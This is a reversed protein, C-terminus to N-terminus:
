LYWGGIAGFKNMLHAKSYVAIGFPLGLILTYVFLFIGARTIAIKVDMLRYKIIAYTIVFPYIAILFNSYPYVNINFVPLFDGHPGLWAIISAVIFYKTQNRILGKANSFSIILQLFTYMLLVWYFLLYFALYLPSKRLTWNHSYYQNFTYSLGGIFTYPYFFNLFIFLGALVYACFLLIKQYPKNLKLFEFVFHSYGVPTLIVGIHAIKWWFYAAEKSTTTTFKFSGWGWISVCLCVFIWILNLKKNSLKYAM